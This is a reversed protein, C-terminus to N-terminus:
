RGAPSAGLKLLHGSHGHKRTLYRINNGKPPVVPLVGEIELGFDLLDRYEAPNKTLLRLTAVGLDILIQAGVALEQSDALREHGRLYIVVGRGAEAICDLAAGLQAGCDCGLSGFVDGTLCETHMRVPVNARGSVEGLVLAVHETGDHENVYAHARFVGRETPIAASSARRVVKERALRYRVLDRISIAVLGHHAAFDLLQPLRAMSGDLNVLEALVGAPYLGALRILDIAAETHGARELVGGERYQLPFIHGPRNLDEPETAPDILARITASRDPASIGTTTGSRADVSITFATRHSESNNLVMPPLRLAELREKMMPVCVLGSTHRVMFGLKEPSVAGAALILDGENERDEDDVVVVFEGMSIAAVAEEVTALGVTPALDFADWAEISM